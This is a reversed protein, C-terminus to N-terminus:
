GSSRGAMARGSRHSRMAWCYSGITLYAVAIRSPVAEVSAIRRRKVLFTM